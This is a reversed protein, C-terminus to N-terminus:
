MDDTVLSKDSSPLVVRLVQRTKHPPHQVLKNPWISVIYGDNQKIVHPNSGQIGDILKSKHWAVGTNLGTNLEYKLELTGLMAVNTVSTVFTVRALGPQRIRTRRLGETLGFYECHRLGPYSIDVEPSHGRRSHTCTRV